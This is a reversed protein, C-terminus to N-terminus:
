WPGEPRYCSCNVLVPVETAPCTPVEAQPPPSQSFTYRTQTLESVQPASVEM